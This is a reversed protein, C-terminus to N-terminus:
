RWTKRRKWRRKRGDDAHSGVGLYFEKVDEKQMLEACTGAAVIRGLELVYADNGSALAIAANQEVVLITTATEGNIRTIIRFIEKTLLPSLGLSPEDLLLLRPRAMLARGIALMQQEGGSLAGARQLRRERFVPFLRFADELRGGIQRRPVTHGGVLLNELVTFEPFIERGEPVHGIGAAVIADPAARPLHPVEVVLTGGR